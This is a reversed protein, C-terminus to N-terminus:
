VGFLLTCRISCISRLTVVYGVFLLLHFQVCRVVVHLRFRFGFLPIWRLLSRLRSRSCRVFSFRVFRVVTPLRLLCPVHILRVRGYVVFTFSDVYVVSRVAVFSCDVYCGVFWGFLAFLLLDFLRVVLTFRLLSRSSRLRLTVVYHVFLWRLLWGCGFSLSCRFTFPFFGFTPVFPVYGVTVTVFWRVRVHIRVCRVACRVWVRVYVLSVVPVAFTILPLLLCCFWRLLGCRILTVFRSRPLPAVYCVSRPLCRLTPIRGVVLATFTVFLVHIYACVLVFGYDL